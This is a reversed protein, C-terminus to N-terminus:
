RLLQERAGHIVAAPTLRSDPDLVDAALAALLTGIQAAAVLAQCVKALAAAEDLGDIVSHFEAAILTSLADPDGQTTAITLM